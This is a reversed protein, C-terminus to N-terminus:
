GLDPYLSRYSEALVVIRKVYNRSEELSLGELFRDLEAEPGEARWLRSIRGPGGNYAALALEVNGDFMSLMRRFYHTGLRVSYDPDDLRNTSYPLGLKRATEQGTAPMLQMLGRAGAHSRATPDFGSEQHIMGFVISPSLREGAAAREVTPRFDLPYYLALADAPAYGQLATGLEPFARKL